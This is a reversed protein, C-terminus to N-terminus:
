EDDEEMEELYTKLDVEGEDTLEEDMSLLLGDADEYSLRKLRQLYHRINKIALYTTCVVGDKMEHIESLYCSPLCFIIAYDLGDTLWYSIYDSGATWKAHGLPVGVQKANRSLVYARERTAKSLRELEGM